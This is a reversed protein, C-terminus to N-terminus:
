TWSDYYLFCNQDCFIHSTCASDVLIAGPSLMAALTTDTNNDHTSVFSYDDDSSAQHAQDTKSDKTYKGQGKWKRKSDSNEGSKKCKPCHVAIHGKEKCEYCTINPNYKGALAMDTSRSKIQRDEELIRAILKSSEKLSSTDISSIFADWSDPLSTLLTISFEKDSIKSGLVALEKILGKLMRIHEKVNGGDKCQTRFLKRRMTIIGIAGRVEYMAKLTDWADKSTKSGAIYVLAADGVRLRIASLARQDKSKWQKQDDTRTEDTPQEMTGDVYDLLDLDTLIDIMKIKWVSYNEAGKLADIRHLPSTESAM